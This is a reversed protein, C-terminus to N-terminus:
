GFAHSLIQLVQAKYGLASARNHRRAIHIVIYKQAEYLYYFVGRRQADPSGDRPQGYGRWFAPESIGCYDLVAFEIEPDGWLGRDWDVIGTVHGQEDVLINQAWIDMHLLSAPVPREFAGACQELLGRLRAAEQESYAGVGVINDILRNWMVRFASPWDPQPEMCRHAGLYGYRDRTIRHLQALMRGVQELVRDYLAATLRPFDSLAGGALKEMILFDRDVVRRSTDHALIEAVPITTERRVIEHIEPEQAMMGIEYFTGGAGDAPAIRLIVARPTERRGDSRLAVEYTTNYKGTPIRRFSEVAWPHNSVIMAEIQERSFEYPAPHTMASM